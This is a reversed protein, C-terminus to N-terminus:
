ITHIAPFWSPEAYSIPWKIPTSKTDSYITTFLSLFINNNCPSIKSLKIELYGLNVFIASVM